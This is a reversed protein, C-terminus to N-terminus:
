DALLAKLAGLTCSTDHLDSELQMCRPESNKLEAEIKKLQGQSQFCQKSRQLLKKGVEQREQKLSALQRELENIKGELSEVVRKQEMCWGFEPVLAKKMQECALIQQRRKEIEQYVGAVHSIQQTLVELKEGILAVKPLAFYKAGLLLDIAVKVKPLQGTEVFEKLPQSLTENVVKLAGDIEEMSTSQATPEQSIASYCETQTLADASFAKMFAQLEAEFGEPENASVLKESLSSTVSLPTSTQTSAQTLVLTEKQMSMTVVESEAMRESSVIEGVPEDSVPQGDKEITREVSEETESPSANQVIIKQLNMFRNRKAVCLEEESESSQEGQKAAQKAPPSQSTSSMTAGDKASDTTSSRNAKRKTGVKTCKKLSEQGSIIPIVKAVKSTTKGRKAAKPKEQVWPNGAFASRKASILGDKFRSGVRKMWWERFHSSSKSTAVRTKMVFSMNYLFAKNNQEIDDKNSFVARLSSYRNSSEPVPAPIAQYYGLQRSFYSPSYLEVGCKLTKGSLGGWFLDRMGIASKWAVCATEWTTDSESAHQSVDVGLYPPYKRSFCVAFQEASFEECKFLVEFCEEASHSLLDLSALQQGLITDAALALGPQRFVPFYTHLWLQFIWLPGSWNPNLGETVCHHLCRYLHALVFPGLALPQDSEQVEKSALAEALKYYEVNVKRSTTCVLFKCIWFALFGAHEVPTVEMTEQQSEVKEELNNDGSLSKSMLGNNFLEIWTNFNAVAPRGKSRDKLECGLDIDFKGEAFVIDVVQGHPPLSTIAAIDILTLSLAGFQLELSNTQSSWFCMAAALLSRDCPITITSLKITDYIGLRKWVDGFRKEVREVWPIWNATENPWKGPKTSWAGWAKGESFYSSDDVEHQSLVKEVDAPIESYFSPGLQRAGGENPVRQTIRNMFASANKETAQSVAEAFAFSRRTISKQKSEYKDEGTGKTAM